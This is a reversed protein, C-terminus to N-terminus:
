MNYYHTSNIDHIISSTSPHEDQNSPSESQRHHHPNNMPLLATPQFLHPLSWASPISTPPPTTTWAPVTTSHPPPQGPNLASALTGMLQLFMQNTAQQQAQMKQFRREEAEQQAKLIREFCAAEQAVQSQEARHLETLMMRNDMMYAQIDVDAKCSKLKRKRAKAGPIPLRGGIIAEENASSETGPDESVGADAVTNTVDADSAQIEWQKNFFM